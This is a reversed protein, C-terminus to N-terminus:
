VIIGAVLKNQFLLQQYKLNFSPSDPGLTDIDKVVDAVFNIIADDLGNYVGAVHSTTTINHIETFENANFPEDEYVDLVAHSQPNNVLFRKLDTQNIIKGRAANIILAKPSVQSLVQHNILHYSSQNLGAAIIIIEAGSYDFHDFGCYPDFIVINNSLPKLCQHLLKGIHGYGIILTKKHQLIERPWKRSQDWMPSHKIPSSHTLLASLIYNSVAMARIPNGLIVPFRNQTALEKSLNDYGSNPHIIAKINSFINEIKIKRFDTNSNSIFITPANKDARQIDSFYQHGLAAVANQEKRSFDGSQYPSINLRVIQM